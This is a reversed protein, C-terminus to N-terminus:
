KLIKKLATVSRKTLVVEGKHVLARGTKKVKGGKAFSAPSAMGHHAGHHAMRQHAPTIHHVARKRVAGLIEHGLLENGAHKLFAVARYGAHGGRKGAM